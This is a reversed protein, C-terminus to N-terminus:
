AFVFPLCEPVDAAAFLLVTLLVLVSDPRYCNVSSVIAIGHTLRFETRLQEATNEPIVTSCYAGHANPSEVVNEEGYGVAALCAAQQSLCFRSPLRNGRLFKRRLNGANRLRQPRPSNRAPIPDGYETFVAM